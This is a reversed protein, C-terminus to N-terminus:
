GSYVWSNIKVKEKVVNGEKIRIVKEKVMKRVDFSDKWKMTDQFISLLKKM